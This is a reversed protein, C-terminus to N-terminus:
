ELKDNFKKLALCITAATMATLILLEKLIYIFPAGQIMLRRMIVAYWRAPIIASLYQFFLPMSEIPFLIGSLLLMPFLLVIAVSLSAVVQTKVLTSVLLGTSLGLIVYILSSFIIWFLSGAMPMGLAFKSMLLIIALDMMGIVLYPVMKAMIITLAKVPSVLLVEMTGTEKERVISVSTMLACILMLILGLIGPVFNYSSSLQPNYLMRVNGSLRGGQATVGESGLSDNIIGCLYMSIASANNPNTADAMIDIQNVDASILRDSFDGNFSLAVDIKGSRMLPAIQEPSSLYGVLNFYTSADISRGLKEVMPDHDPLLIAVNVNRIETSIAYSFMLILIVPTFILLMVTRKDRFIHAFEKKVFAGFETKM